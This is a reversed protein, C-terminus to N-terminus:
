LARAYTLLADMNIGSEWARYRTGVPQNELYYESWVGAEDRLSLLKRCVSEKGPLDYVVLNYLLLGYDYGVNMKSKENSYVYGVRELRKTLEQLYARAAEPDPLDFGLYAPMLLASPLQYRGNKRKPYERKTQCVPCLYVDGEVRKTWGFYACDEAGFNMCVGYRYQPLEMGQTRTPDNLTYIGDVMFHGAYEKGVKELTQGMERLELEEALAEDTLLDLLKRGSVLFLMTAEASGDNIVDRPLLGGAIYTEDGNFPLTGNHLQSRQQVYLWRLFDVNEMLLEKDGSAEMYRFFQLLLYGTIETKDNEAFHFANPVGLAQANRIEGSKRFVNLYFRLMKQAQPFMGLKLMAMCVGFQDRVYGMHYAHGALVGGEDAQQTVINIVTDEIAQLVNDREPMAVPIRSFGTVEAFVEGWWAKTRALMEESDWQVIKRTAIDCAPYDQGGIILLDAKGNVCIDFTFEDPCHVQADGRVIIRFYQPFPLPYDVFFANGNKTKLLYQTCGDAEEEAKYQFANESRTLSHFCSGDEALTYLQMRVPCKTEFHRVICPDDGLAYDTITGVVDQANRLVTQWIGAKELHKPADRTVDQPLKLESEFLAPSSYPPGFVQVYDGNKLVAAMKGNGVIYIAPERM